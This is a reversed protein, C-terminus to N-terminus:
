VTNGSVTVVVRPREVRTIRADVTTDAFLNLKLRQGGAPLAREVAPLLARELSVPRSRVAGQRLPQRGAGRQLAILRQAAPERFLGADEAAPLPTSALAGVMVALVLSRLKM